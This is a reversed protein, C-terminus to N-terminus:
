KKLSQIYDIIGEVHTRVIMHRGEESLMYEIDNRNDYFFNETLVAPCKSKAIIYFDAEKDSDGDKLDKRIKKGKFNKEARKYLCEALTDSKTKGRTTYCEWGTGEMWEGHGCANGHISILIVNKVGEKDCIKNIRRVREGLSIDNDEVVIRRADYGLSKLTLVIDEAIDRNFRWERLTGDPSRKGSTDIGHGNDILIIM